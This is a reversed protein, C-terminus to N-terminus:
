EELEDLRADIAETAGTRDKQEAELNRLARLAAPDDIDAVRQEIEANTHAEPNFPLQGSEGDVEDPAPTDPYESCDSAHNNPEAIPQGCEDCVHDYPDPPGDEERVEGGADAVEEDVREFDGREDCLYQADATSVDARDGPEFEGIGRVRVTGGSTKEVVPM